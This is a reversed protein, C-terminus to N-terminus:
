LASDALHVPSTNSLVLSISIPDPHGDYVHETEANVLIKNSFNYTNMVIM